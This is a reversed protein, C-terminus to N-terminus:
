AARLAAAIAELQEPVSADKRLTVTVTNDNAAEPISPAATVLELSGPPFGYWIGELRTGYKDVAAVEYSAGNDVYGDMESVWGNEWGEESTVKRAVRVTDGVKFTVSPKLEDALLQLERSYFGLTHGYNDIAVRFDGRRGDLSACSIVGTQQDQDLVYPHDVLKVRDGPKFTPAEAAAVATPEDAVRKLRYTFLGPYGEEFSCLGDTGDISAITLLEGFSRGGRGDIVKVRDGVKFTPAAAPEPAFLEANSQSVFWGAGDVDYFRSPWGDGDDRKIVLYGDGDVHVVVGSVGVSGKVLIRDGVKFAPVPAAEASALKVREVGCIQNIVGDTQHHLDIELRSGHAYTVYGVDGVKTGHRFISSDVVEVKDGVKFASEVVAIPEPATQEVVLEFEDDFLWNEDGEDDIALVSDDGGDFRIVEYINGATFGCSGEVTAKVKDGAKPKEPKADPKGAKTPVLKYQGPLLWWDDGIDDRYHVDGDPDISTVVYHSGETTDFDDILAEITDGVQPQPNADFEFDWLYREWDFGDGAVYVHAQANVREVVCLQGTKIGYYDMKSRVIDGVKVATVAPVVQLRSPNTGDGFPTGRGNPDKLVANNHENIRDVTFVTEATSEPWKEKRYSENSSDAKFRVKDGVKVNSM